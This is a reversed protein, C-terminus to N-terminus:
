GSKLAKPILYEKFRRSILRHSSAGSHPNLIYTIYGDDPKM